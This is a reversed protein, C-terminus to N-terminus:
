DRRRCWHCIRPVVGNDSRIYVEVDESTLRSCTIPENGDRRPTLTRHVVRSFIVIDDFYVLVSKWMMDSFVESMLRIFTAPATSLGFPM